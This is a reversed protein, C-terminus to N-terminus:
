SVRALDAPGPGAGDGLLRGAEAAHDAEHQVAGGGRRGHRVPEVNAMAGLRPPNSLMTVWGTVVVWWPRSGSSRAARAMASLM